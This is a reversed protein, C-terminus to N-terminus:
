LQEVFRVVLKGPPADIKTKPLGKGPFDMSMGPKIPGKIVQNIREGRLDVIDLVYEALLQNKRMKIYFVIDSNERHFTPHTLECIVVIVDGKPGDYAFQSGQKSYTLKTGPLFGPKIEVNLYKVDLKRKFKQYFVMRTLRLTKTCGVALQELTCYLKHTMTSPRPAPPKQRSFSFGTYVGTGFARKYDEAFFDFVRRNQPSFGYSSMSSFFMNMTQEESAGGGFGPGDNPEDERKGSLIEYANTIEKFREEAGVDKNKDPHFQLALKRYKARIESEEATENLGLTECHKRKHCSQM